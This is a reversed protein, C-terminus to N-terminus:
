EEEEVQKQYEEATLLESLKLADDVKIQFLWGDGYPDTNVKEPTEVLEDNVAVIEGTMPSYVDAATKVSEVVAIEDGESITDGVDPLDVFVLDGMAAQAHDTVGVTVIDNGEERLWEHSKTYRLDSPCYSM